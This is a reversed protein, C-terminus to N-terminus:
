SSMAYNGNKNCGASKGAGKMTDITIWNVLREPPSVVKLTPERLYIFGYTM